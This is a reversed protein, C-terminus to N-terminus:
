FFRISFNRCLEPNRRGKIGIDKTNGSSSDDKVEYFMTGYIFAIQIVAQFGFCHIADIFYRGSDILIKGNMLPVKETKHQLMIICQAKM